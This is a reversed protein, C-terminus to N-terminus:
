SKGFSSNTKSGRDDSLQGRSLGSGSGSSKVSGGSLISSLDSDQRKTQVKVGEKKEGDEEKGDKQRDSAKDKVSSTM